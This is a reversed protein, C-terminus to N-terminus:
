TVSIGPRNLTRITVYDEHDRAKQEDTLRQFRPGRRAQFAVAVQAQKQKVILYPLIELLFASATDGCVQWQWSGYRKDEWLSGGFNRQLRKLPPDVKQAVKVVLRYGTARGQPKGLSICGEGDFFGAAWIKADCKKM